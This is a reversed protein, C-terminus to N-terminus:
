YMGQNSQFAELVLEEGVFIQLVGRSQLSDTVEVIAVKLEKANFTSCLFQVIVSGDGILELHLRSGPIGFLAVLKRLEEVTNTGWYNKLKLTIVAKQSSMKSSVASAPFLKKFQNLTTGNMFHLLQEEYKM